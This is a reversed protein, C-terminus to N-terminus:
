VTPIVLVLWWPWPYTVAHPEGELTPPMHFHLLEGLVLRYMGQLCVLFAVAGFGAILGVLPSCVAARGVGPTAWLNAIRIFGERVIRQLGGWASSPSPATDEQM